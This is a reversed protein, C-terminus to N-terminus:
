ECKERATETDSIEKETKEISNEYKKISDKITLYFDKFTNKAKGVFTKFTDLNGTNDIEFREM